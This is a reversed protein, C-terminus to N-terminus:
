KMKKDRIGIIRPDSSVIELKDCISQRTKFNVPFLHLHDRVLRRLITSTFNNKRIKSYLGLIEKEPFSRFHDLKISTDIIAFATSDKELEEYTERLYESGVSHSIRKVVSQAFMSFVYFLLRDTTQALEKEDKIKMREQLIEGILKRFENLHDEFLAFWARMARLGVSYSEKAIELKLDGRLSGPFSRLIQGLIQLTKYAVNIQLVDDEAKEFEKEEQEQEPPSEKESDGREDLSDLAQRHREKNERLNVNHLQLAPRNVMLRNMFEIHSELNCPDHTVYITKAHELLQAITQEDKTLYVLFILINAFDEVHVKRTMEAIQERLQVQQSSSHLNDAFYKAAFYYYIYKYYFRYEDDERQLIRSEELIGLMGDRSFRMRHQVQYENTVSDLDTNSLYRQKRRFLSYAVNSLYTYITDLTITKPKNQLTKHLAGLILVEYYYGFSGSLTNHTLHAEYTQLMILVFIPHSPLLSKGLLTTIIHEAQSIQHSTDREDGSYDQGLQFWKEILRGRLRHGFERIECRAFSLFASREEDQYSIDELQFIDSAFVVIHGFIKQILKITFNQGERNLQAQHFDDILLVKLKRDLQKYPEVLEQGYQQAVCSNIAQLLSEETPRTLRAGPIMVPILQENQFKLYLSKAFATKGARDAGTLLIESHANIYQWVQDSYIIASENVEKKKREYSVNDLDPYVFIDSLTVQSTAPHTFAAGPDLLLAIYDRTNEFNGTALRRTRELPRWDTSQNPLYVDHQWSYSLLKHAKRELDIVVINFGSDSSAGNQLVAGEIYENIQGTATRKTYQDPSHEHGTLVVDSGSEITKRFARANNSELWNYPHHFLSIIFDCPDTTCNISTLPFLLQGQREPLQSMWATNFCQFKFTKGETNFKHEWYLRDWGEKPEGLRSGLFTFFADQVKLCTTVFSDDQQHLHSLRQHASDILVQRVDSHQAFDCDHNGPIFIEEVCLNKDISQIAEHLRSFFKDVIDYEEIKGAYAIDGTVVIFCARLYPDAAQIAGRISDFRDFIFDDNNKFHIDSLHLLGIRM